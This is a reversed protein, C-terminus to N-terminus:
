NDYRFLLIGQCQDTHVDQDREENFIHGHKGANEGWIPAVNTYDTRNDIM